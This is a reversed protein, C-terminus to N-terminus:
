PAYVPPDSHFAKAMWDKPYHRMKEALAAAHDSRVYWYGGEKVAPLYGGRIWEEISNRNVLLVGVADHAVHLWRWSVAGRLSRAHARLAPDTIREPEWCMWKDQRTLFEMVATRPIWLDAYVVTAKHSKGPTAPLEGDRIWRRVCANSPHGLIRSLELATVRNQRKATGYTHLFANRVDHYTVGYHDALRRLTWGQETYYTHYAEQITAPALRTGHQKTKSARGGAYVRLHCRGCRLDGSIGYRSPNPDCRCYLSRDLTPAHM